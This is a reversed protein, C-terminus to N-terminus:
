LHAVRAAPAAGPEAPATVSTRTPELAQNPLRVTAFVASIGRRTFGEFAQLGKSKFQRAAKGPRRAQAAGRHGFVASDRDLKTHRRHSSKMLM